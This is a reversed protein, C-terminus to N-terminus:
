SQFETDKFFMMWSWTAGRSGGPLIRGAVIFTLSELIDVIGIIWDCDIEFCVDSRGSGRPKM